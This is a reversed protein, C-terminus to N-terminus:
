RPSSGTSFFTAHTVQLHTPEVSGRVCIVIREEVGGGRAGTMWGVGGGGGVGRRREGAGEETKKVSCNELRVRGMRGVRGRRDGARGNKKGRKLETRSGM